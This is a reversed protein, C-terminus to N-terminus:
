RRWPSTTRPVATFDSGSGLPHIRLHPRPSRRRREATAVRARTTAKRPGTPGAEPRPDNVDRAVRQHASCRTRGATGLWGQRHRRTSTSSVRGGCSRTTSRPGNPRASCVGSRATGRRWCSRAARNGDPSSCSQSDERPKWSRSTGATPDDAGNVWADHHNGHLIWEDPFATGEIRVVVNYLPRVQWDFSLKLRVKAGARDSTIRSPLAGRWSRACRSRRPEASAAARRWLLDAAGPDPTFVKAEAVPLKKGGTEPAWGPTHPDGTHVPMDMVSGRQVGQVPRYPGGSCTARTSATTTRIRTSSAASPATSARWRPSSAEGAAATAAGDRDERERERRGERAGRLRGANRLERLRGRRDRRRRRFLRQLDADPGRRAFRSGAPGAPEQILMARGTPQVMELRRERPWPM